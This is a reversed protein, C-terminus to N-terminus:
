GVVRLKEPSRMARIIRDLDPVIAGRFHAEVAKPDLLLLAGNKGDILPLGDVSLGYCGIGRMFQVDTM